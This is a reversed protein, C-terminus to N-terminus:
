LLWKHFSVKGISRLYAIFSIALVPILELIFLSILPVCYITGGFTMHVLYLNKLETPPSNNLLHDNPCSITQKPFCIRGQLWILFCFRFWIGSPNCNRLSFSRVIFAISPSYKYDKYLFVRGPMTGYPYFNDLKTIYFTFDRSTISVMFLSLFYLPFFYKCSINSLKLLRVIYSAGM